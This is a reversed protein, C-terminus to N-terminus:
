GIFNLTDQYAADLELINRRFAPYGGFENEDMGDLEYAQKFYPIKLLNKIIDEPIQESIVSTKILRDESLILKALFSPNFTYVLEHGLTKELHLSFTGPTDGGNELSSLLVKIPLKEVKVMALCREFVALEAWRVENESLNINAQKAQRKFEPHSGLRGIMYTIVARWRSMNVNNQLATAYGSKLAALCRKFQPVTFCTTNNIAIGMSVLKEIAEYGFKNGIVKVMMNPCIRAFALGQRIMESADNISETLVQACIWGYKGNSMQWLPLAMKANLKFVEQHLEWYIDKTNAHPSDQKLQQALATYYNKNAMIGQHVLKPNTTFGLFIGNTINQSDLVRDLYSRLHNSNSSTLKELMEGKWAAMTAPLSDWWIETEHNLKCIHELMGCAIM